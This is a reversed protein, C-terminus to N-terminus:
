AYFSALNLLVHTVLAITLATNKGYKQLNFYYQWAFIFGVFFTYMAGYIGMSVFHYMYFFAAFILMNLKPHFLTKLFFISLIITEIIPALV